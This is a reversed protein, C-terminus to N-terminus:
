QHVLGRCRRRGIGGEGVGLEAGLRPIITNCTPSIFALFSIQHCSFRFSVYVICTKTTPFTSTLSVRVSVTIIRCETTLSPMDSFVTCSTPRRLCNHPHSRVNASTPYTPCFHLLVRCLASRQSSCGALMDPNSLQELQM